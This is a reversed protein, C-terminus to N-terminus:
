TRINNIAILAIDTQWQRSDMVTALLDIYSRTLPLTLPLTLVTAESYSRRSERLYLSRFRVNVSRTSVTVSLLIQSTLICTQWAITPPLCLSGIGAVPNTFPNIAPTLCVDVNDMDGRVIMKHEKYYSDAEEDVVLLRTEDPVAKIRQVVQQHNESGINIGNVEIIRDGPRLNAAVSPSQADVTGIFQGAKGREAHLNFGYGNFDSWKRLHCLRPRPADPPLSYSMKPVFIVVFLGWSLVRFYERTHDQKVQLVLTVYRLLNSACRAPWIDM